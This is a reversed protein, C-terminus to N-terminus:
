INKELLKFGIEFCFFSDQLRKAVKSLQDIMIIGYVIYEATLLQYSNTGFTKAETGVWVNPTAVEHSTQKIIKREGTAIQKTAIVNRYMLVTCKAM